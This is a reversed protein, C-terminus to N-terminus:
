ESYSPNSPLACYCGRALWNLIPRRQPAQLATVGLVREVATTCLNGSNVPGAYALARGDIALLTPTAPLERLVARWAVSSRSDPGDVDRVVLRIDRGSSRALSVELSNRAASTCPCDRDVILVLTAGQGDITQLWGAVSSAFPKGFYTRGGGDSPVYWRDLSARWADLAFLALPATLALTILLRDYTDPKM